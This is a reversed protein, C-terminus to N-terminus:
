ADAKPRPAAKFEGCWSNARKSVQAPFRRCLARDREKAIGPTKHWDWFRCGQCSELPKQAKTRAQKPRAM